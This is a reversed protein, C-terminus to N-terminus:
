SGPRLARDGAPGPRDGTVPRVFPLDRVAPCAVGGDARLVAELAPGPGSPYRGGARAANAEIDALTGVIRGYPPLDTRGRRAVAM